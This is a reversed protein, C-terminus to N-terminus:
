KNLPFFNNGGRTWATNKATDTSGIYAVGTLNAAPDKLGTVITSYIGLYDGALKASKLTQFEYAFSYGAQLGARQKSDLSGNGLFNPSIGDVKVWRANQLDAAVTTAPAVVTGFKSAASNDLSAVGIGLGTNARVASILTSTGSHTTVTMLPISDVINLSVTSGSIEDGIMDLATTGAIPTKGVFNAEGAFRIQTAAQTGSSAPRRNLNLPTTVTADRLFLASSLTKGTLLAAMDASSVNPQCQALLLNADVTSDCDTHLRGETVERKMLAKYMANNVVVGFGQMAITESPFTAPAWKAIQGPTAESPRVDSFAMHAVKQKDVGWATKFDAKQAAALVVVPALASVTSVTVNADSMSVGAKQAAATHLKITEYEKQDVAAEVSGSKLGTLLQNVGAMSGNKGNVIVAVRKGAWTTNAAGYGYYAYMDASIATTITVFPKSKDFVLGNTVLVAQIAGKMATAGASYFTLQPACTKLLTVGDLAAATTNCSTTAAAFAGSSVLALAAFAIKNLKM